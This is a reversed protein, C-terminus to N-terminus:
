SQRARERMHWSYSYAALQIIAPQVPKTTSAQKSHELALVALAAAAAKEAGRLVRM